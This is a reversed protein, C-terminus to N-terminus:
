SGNTTPLVGDIKLTANDINKCETRARARQKKIPVIGCSLRDVPARESESVDPREDIIRVM